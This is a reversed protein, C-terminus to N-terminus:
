LHKYDQLLCLFSASSVAFDAHIFNIFSFTWVGIGYIPNMFLCGIMLYGWYFIFFFSWKLNPVVPAIFLRSYTFKPCNKICCHYSFYFSGTDWIYLTVFSFDLSTPIWTISFFILTCCFCEWQVIKKLCTGETTPWRTLSLLRPFRTKNHARMALVRTSSM